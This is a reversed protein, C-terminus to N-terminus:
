AVMDRVPFHARWEDRLVPPVPIGYGALTTHIRGLTAEPTGYLDTAKLVVVLWGRARLVERREEDKRQQESDDHWRGDYEIAVKAPPYSLDLRYEVTGDPRRIEFNVIPEPLGALVLLLRVKTEPASDVRDRTLEAARRVLRSGQGGHEDAVSCMGEPTTLGRRIFQDACAVLDVLNLPRTLHILTHEPSTVAIGHRRATAFPTEFRHIKIGDVDSTVQRNFAFHVNSEDPVVGGWLRAATFHSAVADSPLLLRAARARVVLTDPVVAAIYIGPFVRRYDPGRLTRRSIGALVADAYTFPSMTDLGAVM